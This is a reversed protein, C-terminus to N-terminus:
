DEFCEMHRVDGTELVAAFNTEQVAAALCQEFASAEGVGEYIEMWTTPDDRKTLLRGAIDMRSKLAAQIDRVLTRAQAPQAVRYYIYYSLSLAEAQFLRERRRLCSSPSAAQL